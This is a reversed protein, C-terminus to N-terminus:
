VAIPSRTQTVIIAYENCGVNRVVFLLISMGLPFFRREVELLDFEFGIGKSTQVESSCRSRLGLDGGRQSLIPCGRIWNNAGWFVLGACLSSQM